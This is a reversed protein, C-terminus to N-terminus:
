GKFALSLPGEFVWYLSLLVLRIRQTEFTKFDYSLKPFFLSVLTMVSFRAQCRYDANMKM